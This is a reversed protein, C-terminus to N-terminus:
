VYTPNGTINTAIFTNAVESFTLTVSDYQSSSSISGGTGTTTALGGPLIILQSANQAITWGGAGYGEVIYIDGAVPSTAVTLTVLSANDVMYRNGAVMTVSTTTQDVPDTYTVGTSTTGIAAVSIGNGATFGAFVPTAGTSGIFTRNNTAAGIFSPVGASSSVYFRDNTPTLKGVVNAATSYLLDSTTMTLPYTATSWSPTATAGSLLLQAATATGSLINLKSADSWVIGGNSAVLSNNTGGGLLSTSASWTGTTITGLTTITTAGIDINTTTTM